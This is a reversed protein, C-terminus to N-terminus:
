RTLCFENGEPDAVMARDDYTAIVRGGLRTIASSGAGLDEVRLAKPSAAAAMIVL